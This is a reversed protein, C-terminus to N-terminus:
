HKCTIICPNKKNLIYMSVSSMLDVQKSMRYKFFFFFFHTKINEYDNSLFKVQGMKLKPATKIAHAIQHLNTELQLRNIAELDIRILIYTENPEYVEEMYMAVDGLTTKEIRGKVVRASRVDQDFHLQCTIIPTSIVKAANIIEKIRPVGLTINM